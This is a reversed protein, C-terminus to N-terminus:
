YAEVFHQLVVIIIVCMINKNVLLTHDYTFNLQLKKM